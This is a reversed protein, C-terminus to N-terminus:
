SHSFSICGSLAIARYLAVICNVRLGVFDSGGIRETICDWDARHLGVVCSEHDSRAIPHLGYSAIGRHRLGCSAIGRHSRVISDARHFGCSAIRVICDARLGM